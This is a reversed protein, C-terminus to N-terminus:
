VPVLLLNGYPTPSAIFGMDGSPKANADKEANDDASRYWVAKGTRAEYAALWNRRTRRPVSGYNFGVNVNAQVDPEVPGGTKPVRKGELNFILDGSMSISQHVRDGFHLIEGMSKPGAGPQIGYGQVMMQQTMMTAA